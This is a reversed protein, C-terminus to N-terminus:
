KVRFLHYDGAFGVQELGWEAEHGVILNGIPANGGEGTPALLYRFGVRRIARAAELRLDQVSRTTVLAQDTLFHWAGKADQGEVVGAFPLHGVLLASSLRQPHEFDVEFYM